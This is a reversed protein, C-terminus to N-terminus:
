GNLNCRFSEPKVGMALLRARFHDKGIVGLMPSKVPRTLRQVAALLQAIRDSDLNDRTVLESLKVRKLETEVLVKARKQSGTLGDFEALFDSVLRDKGADHDNTIYAGILRELHPLEYWAPSTPRCPTWKHWNTNTAKWTTKQGFWDLTITAHPNFVAFGQALERFSRAFGQDCGRYGCPYPGDFPWRTESDGDQQARWELRVSTGSLAQKKRNPRSNLNKCKETAEHHIEPRQSIPDVGCRIVHQKGNAEVIFLGKDPDLVHPMPLLTKLANGQAGRDPAVYPERNSVRVTFDLAGKLTTEPLGPGNDSVTIGCQGGPAKKM